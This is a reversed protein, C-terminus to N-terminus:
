RMAECLSAEEAALALRLRRRAKWARARLAQESGGLVEVLDAYPRGEVATLYLLAREGPRLHRLVGLDSPYTAECRDATVLRPLRERLRASRRRHGHELNRIARRLYAAPDDLEELPCIRLVKSLAEQVLDEPDVDSSAVSAAFRRLDPYLTAIASSV